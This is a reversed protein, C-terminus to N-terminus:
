TLQLWLLNIVKKFYVPSLTELTCWRLSMHITFPKYLKGINILAKHLSIFLIPIDFNLPYFELDGPGPGVEVGSTSPLLMHSEPDADRGWDCAGGGGGGGGQVEQLSPGGTDGGGAEAVAPVVVEAGPGAGAVDELSVQSDITGSRRMMETSNKLKSM